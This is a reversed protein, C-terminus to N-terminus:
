GVPKCLREFVSLARVYSKSAFMEDQILGYLSKDSTPHHFNETLDYDLNKQEPLQYKRCAFNICWLPDDVLQLFPIIVIDLTECKEYYACYWELQKEARNPKMDSTLVLWSPICELPNRISVVVNKETELLYIRHELWRCKTLHTFFHSGSRPYAGFSLAEM